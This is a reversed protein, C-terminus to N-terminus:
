VTQTFSAVKFRVKKDAIDGVKPDVDSSYNREYVWCQAWIYVYHASKM